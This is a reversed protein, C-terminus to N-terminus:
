ALMAEDDLCADEEARLIEDRNPPSPIAALVRKAAHDVVEDDPERRLLSRLSNRVYARAREVQEATAQQYTM